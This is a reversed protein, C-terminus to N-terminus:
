RVAPPIPQFTGTRRPACHRAYRASGGCGNSNWNRRRECCSLGGCVKAASSSGVKAPCVFSVHAKEAPIWHWGGTTWRRIAPNLKALSGGNDLSSARCEQQGSGGHRDGTATESGMANRRAACRLQAQTNHRSSPQGFACITTRYAAATTLSGRIPRSPREIM